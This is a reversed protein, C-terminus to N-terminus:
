SMEKAAVGRGDWCHKQLKNKFLYSFAFLCMTKIKKIKLVYFAFATNGTRGVAYKGEGM